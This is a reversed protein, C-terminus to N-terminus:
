IFVKNREELNFGLARIIKRKTDLRCSEGKEIRDLTQVSIGAKRALESKSMMRDERIKRVNNQEM